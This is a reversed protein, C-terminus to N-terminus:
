VGTLFPVPTKKKSKVLRYAFRHDYCNMLIPHVADIASVLTDILFHGRGRTLLARFAHGVAELTVLFSVGRFQVFIAKPPPPLTLTKM